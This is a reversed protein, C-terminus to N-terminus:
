SVKVKIFNDMNRVKDFMEEHSEFKLLVVGIRTNSGNFKEVKQGPKVKIVKYILNKQIEDTFVIDQLIGSKTSHIVYHAHYGKSKTDTPIVVKKGISADIVFDVLNVNTHEQIIETFLNGGNRAGIEIIYVEDQVQFVDVNFGGTKIKLLDFIKQIIKIAKQEIHKGNVTPLTISCPVLPNCRDDFHVNGFAYFIIEGDQVFLDGCFQMSTREIYKEILVHSTGSYKVAENFASEIDSQSDVVTIGKSGSSNVAKVISKGNLGIFEEIQAISIVKKYPPHPLNHLEMFSRLASKHSLTQVAQFSNTNLGLSDGVYAVTEAAPDSAYALVGDIKLKKALELIKEKDITSINHYEHSYKHGLNDPLYDATIVYYGLEVARKIASVQIDSGGLMLIKKNRM